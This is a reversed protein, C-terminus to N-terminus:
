PVYRYYIPDYGFANIFISINSFAPRGLSASMYYFNYQGTQFYIGSHAGPWVAIDGTIPDNVQVWNPNIGFQSTSCRPYGLGMSCFPLWVLGSCDCGTVPDSGGYVYPTNIFDTIADLFDTAIFCSPPDDQPLPNGDDYICDVPCALSCDGCCNCLEPIIVLVDFQGPQIANNACNVACASCYICEETITFMQLRENIGFRQM